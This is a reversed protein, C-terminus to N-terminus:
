LLVATESFNNWSSVSLRSTYHTRGMRCQLRKQKLIDESSKNQTLSVGSESAPFLSNFFGIGGWGLVQFYKRNNQKGSFKERQSIKVKEVRLSVHQSELQEMKAEQSSLKASLVHFEGKQKKLKSNPAWRGQDSTGDEGIDVNIKKFQHTM